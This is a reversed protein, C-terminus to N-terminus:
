LNWGTSQICCLRCWSIMLPFEHWFCCGLGCIRCVLWGLVFFMLLFFLMFPVQWDSHLVFTELPILVFWASTAFRSSCFLSCSSCVSAYGIGRTGGTVLATKGELSWRQLVVSSAMNEERFRSYIKHACQAREHTGITNQRSELLLENQISHYWRNPSSSLELNRTKVRIERYMKVQVDKWTNGTFM